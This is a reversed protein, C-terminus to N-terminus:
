RTAPKAAEAGLIMRLATLPDVGKIAKPKPHLKASKAAAKRSVRRLVGLKRDYTYRFAGPAIGASKALRLTARGKKSQRKHARAASAKTAAKFDAIKVVDMQYQIVDENSGFDFFETDGAKVEITQCDTKRPRCTGDGTATVDSSVMFVATKGDSLVGLYIFFPSDTSPLPSLRAINRLTRQKGAEGFRLTVRYSDLPDPAPKPTDGTSPTTPTTGGGSPAATGGTASSAGPTTVTSCAPDCAKPAHQQKFPDRVAGKRDRRATASTDLSVQAGGGPQSTTSRPSAGTAASPSPAPSGGGLMVPVAVLAVVLVIALPWLKKEVLDAVLNRVFSM